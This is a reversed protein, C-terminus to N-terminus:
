EIRRLSDTDGQLWYETGTTNNRVKVRGDYGHDLVQVLAWGTRESRKYECLAQLPYENEVASNLMATAQRHLEKAHKITYM